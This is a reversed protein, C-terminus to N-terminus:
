VCVCVCVCFMCLFCFVCVVWMCCLCVVCGCCLCCVCCVCFVCLVGGFEEVGGLLEGLQKVEETGDCEVWDLVVDYAVNVFDTLALKSCRSLRLGQLLQHNILQPRLLM